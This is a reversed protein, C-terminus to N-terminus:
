FFLKIIVILLVILLIILLYFTIKSLLYMYSYGPEVQKDLKVFKILKKIIYMFNYKHDSGWYKSNETNTFLQYCLPRHYTYQNDFSNYSDWDKIKEQKVKLLEIRNKKSYICAHMGGSIVIKYHKSNYPIFLYPVCGLFYQFNTNKQKKIFTCIDQQIYKKKIDKHFIFDDELILINNYNNQNAHKFVKFFADVLDLPPITIYDEKECNKYGKNFVIYTIKTPHYEDLKNMIGEFRGNDKLHIIYTADVCSDLLGKQFIFKEFRYCNNNM